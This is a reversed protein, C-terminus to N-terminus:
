LVQASCYTDPDLWGGGAAAIEKVNKIYLPDHNFRIQNYTAKFPKLLPVKNANENLKIGKIIAELRDKSEIHAGTDHSLYASDYVIAGNMM